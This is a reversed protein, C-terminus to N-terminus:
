IQKNKFKNQKLNQLILNDRHVRGPMPNIRYEGPTKGTEKKFQTSFIQQSSYGLENAIDSTSLEGNIILEKAKEIKLSIYYKQITTGSNTSFIRSLYYYSRQMMETLYTSLNTHREDKDKSAVEDLYM